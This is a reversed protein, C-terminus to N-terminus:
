ERVFRATLAGILVTILLWGGLVCVGYWTQVVGTPAWAAEQGFNIVPLVADLAYLPSWYDPLENTKKLAEFRHHHAAWPFVMMSLVWLWILWFLARAPRYGYGVSAELLLSGIRSPLRLRARHHRYKEIAVARADEERGAARYVSALHDYADPLFEERDRRIWRLRVDRDGNENPLANYRFGDLRLACPSPASPQDRLYAVSAGRLDLTGPFVPESLVDLLAESDHSDFIEALSMEMAGGVAAGPLRVEGDASFPRSSLPHPSPEPNIWVNAGVRLWDGRIAIRGPNKFSASRLTLAGGIRARQLSVEGYATFSQEASPHRAPMPQCTLNREVQIANANLAVGGANSLTAGRLLMDGGIHTGSLRVEGNAMFPQNALVHDDPPADALLHREITSESGNFAIGGPNELIAGRLVLSGGVYTGFLNLEGNATFPREELPHGKRVAGLGVDRGIRASDLSVAIYHPSELKASHFAVRGRIEAAILLVAGEVSFPTAALPHGKPVPDCVLDGGVSMGQGDLAVAGPNSLQASRLDFSGGITARRFGIAGRVSFPREALPENEPQASCLLNEGVTLHDALLAFASENNLSTSEFNLDSGVNAGRVDLWRAALRGLYLM